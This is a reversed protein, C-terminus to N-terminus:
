SDAVAEKYLGAVTAGFAVSYSVDDTDGGQQYGGIVGTVEDTSTAASALARAAKSKTGTTKATNTTAPTALFPGGSTGDPYGGCDFQLQTASFQTTRNVCSVPENAQEPYGIVRVVSGSATGTVLKEGGTVSQIEAGSPSPALRLFAVDDDPDQGSQWAATTYVRTVLWTGYPAIGDHYDPVFVVASTNGTVCHAATVALDGSPSDVVSATCFHDGGVNLGTTSGNVSGVAFLAGVTSTGTFTRGSPTGKPVPVSERGTLRTFADDIRRVVSAGPMRAPVVVALLAASGAVGVLSYVVRRRRRRAPAQAPRLRM